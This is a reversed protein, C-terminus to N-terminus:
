KDQSGLYKSVYLIVPLNGFGSGIGQMDPVRPGWFASVEGLQLGPCRGIQVQAQLLTEARSQFVCFTCGLQLEIGWPDQCMWPWLIM